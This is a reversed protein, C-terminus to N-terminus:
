DVEEADRVLYPRNKDDIHLIAIKKGVKEKLKEELLETFPIGINRQSFKLVLFGSDNDVVVQQLIDNIEQWPELREFNCNMKM